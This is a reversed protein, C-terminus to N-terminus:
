GPHIGDARWFALVPLFQQNSLASQQNIASRPNIASREALRMMLCFRGRRVVIAKTLLDAIM